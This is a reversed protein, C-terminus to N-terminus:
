FGVRVGGDFTNATFSSQGAQVNYYFFFTLLDSLKTPTASLGVGLLAFDREPSNTQVVFSGVAPAGPTGVQVGRSDDLFEHYYDLHAEPSFEIGYWRYSGQARVGLKGRLSDVNQDAVALDMVGAGSETYSNEALHTYNVGIEPDINWNALKFDYGTDFNVLVEAGDPRSTATGGGAPAVRRNDYSSYGGAVLGNAFIHDHSFVAYLGGLYTDEDLRSGDSFNAGTTTYTALAGVALDAHVKLDVGLAPTGTLAHYGPAATANSEDAKTVTGSVWAGWRGVPPPAVAMGNNQVDTMSDTRLAGQGLMNGLMNDTQGLSAIMSEPVINLQSLDLGGTGERLQFARSDALESIGLSTALNVSSLAQYFERGSFQNLTGEPNVAAAAFLADYAPLAGLNDLSAAVGRLGPDVVQELSVAEDNVTAFYEYNYTKGAFFNTGTFTITGPGTGATTITSRLATAQAPTLGALRFNLTNGNALSVGDMTGSVVPRGQITVSSGTGKVSLSYASSTVSGGVDLITSNNGNAYIGYQASITGSNFLTATGTGEAYLGVYGQGGGYGDMVGTNTLISTRSGGTVIGYNGSLTGYNIGTGGSDIHIGANIATSNIVAGAMNTVSGSGTLHIADGGTATMMGSNTVTGNGIIYIGYTSSMTGSVSNTVTGGNTFTVAEGGTSSIYGSNSLTGAGTITIATGLSSTIRGTASNTISGPDGLNIAGDNQGGSITGSNTVQSTGTGNSALHVGYDYGTIVGTNNVTGAGIATIGNGNSGTISGANTVMGTGQFYVGSASHMVGTSTNTVTGSSGFIKVSYGSSSTNLSGSNTVTGVGSIQIDNGTTSYISGSNTVTGAGAITIANFSTANISGGINNTM